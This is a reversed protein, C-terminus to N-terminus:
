RATLVLHRAPANSSAATQLDITLPRLTGDAQVRFTQTQTQLLANTLSYSSSILTFVQTASTETALRYSLVISGLQNSKASDSYVKVTGFNGTDGVKAAAPLVATGDVVGYNVPSATTNGRLNYSADYYSQTTAVNGVCNSLTLTSTNTVARAQAGEFTAAVPSSAVFSATGSCDGSVTYNVTSGAQILAAYATQLSYTSLAPQTPNVVPPVVVVPNGADVVNSSGGDGGGGGCATLILAAATFALSHTLKMTDTTWYTTDNTRARALTPRRMAEQGRNSKYVSTRVMGSGHTVTPM